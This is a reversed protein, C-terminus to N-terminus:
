LIGFDCDTINLYYYCNELIREVAVIALLLLPLKAIKMLMEKSLLKKLRDM